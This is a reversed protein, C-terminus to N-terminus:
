FQPLATVAPDQRAHADLAAGIAEDLLEAAQDFQQETTSFPPVFRLVSGRRRVSFLLGNEACRDAIFKGIGLFPEKAHRDKVFEIGQILGRGRIDGIVEYRQQLREMHARWYEGSLRARESLNDDVVINISAIGANCAMPDNTHSHGLVLGMEFAKEEVEATAVMASIEIGGGFHKSLTMIDPIVNEQECAFMTGTKGLGTQAEDFILLMGRAHCETKLAALWGPPPEIVGGASFLPETMVAALAGTSQADLLQMSLKLCQMECSPYFLKLPCRYCYPTIITFMGPMGPGYGSHWGDAFTLQRAGYGLGHMSLDPAAIEFGGTAKKAVTMAAENADSGSTLFTSKKLPAPLIQGLRKALEIEKVNLLTNASHILQGCSEQIAAVIRPHNHGLAGCMQGSNFDIYQKGDTDVLISGSGSEIIPAADKYKDTRGRFSFEAADRKLAENRTSLATASVSM